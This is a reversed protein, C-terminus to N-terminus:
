HNVKVILSFPLYGREWSFTLWTVIPWRDISWGLLLLWVRRTFTAIIATRKPSAKIAGCGALRTSLLSVGGPFLRITPLMRQRVRSAARNAVPRRASAM